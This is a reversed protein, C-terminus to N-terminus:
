YWDIDVCLHCGCIDNEICDFESQQRTNSCPLPDWISLGWSRFKALQPYPQSRIWHRPRLTVLKMWNKNPEGAGMLGIDELSERFVDSVSEMQTLAYERSNQGLPIQRLIPTYGTYGVSSLAGHIFEDRLM